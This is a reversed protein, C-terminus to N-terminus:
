LNNFTVNEILDEDITLNIPEFSTDFQQIQEVDQLLMLEREKIYYDGIYRQLEQMEQGNYNTAISQNHQEYMIHLKSRQNTNATKFVIRDIEPNFPTVYVSQITYEDNKYKDPIKNFVQNTYFQQIDEYRDLRTKAQTIGTDAYLLGHIAFSYNNNQWTFNWVVPRNQYNSYLEYLKLKKSDIRRKNTQTELRQNIEEQTPDVWQSNEISLANIDIFEHIKGTQPNKKYIM